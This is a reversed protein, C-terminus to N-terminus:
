IKIWDGIVEGCYLDGGFMIREVGIDCSAPPGLHAHEPGDWKVKIELNYVLNDILQGRKAPLVLLPDNIQTPKPKNYTVPKLATKFHM